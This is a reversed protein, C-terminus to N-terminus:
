SLNKSIITECFRESVRPMSECQSTRFLNLRVNVGINEPAEVQAEVPPSSVRGADGPAEVDAASTDGRGLSPQHHEAFAKKWVERTKSREAMLEDHKQQLRSLVLPLAREPDERLHEVMEAGGYDYMTEIFRLEGPTLRCGDRRGAALHKGIRSMASQAIGITVDWNCM